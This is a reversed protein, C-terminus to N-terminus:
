TVKGEVVDLLVTVPGDNILDIKMHAGFTGTAVPIGAAAVLRAVEGVLPEATDPAAAGVFSPRRGRRLDALLTFQSVILMEGGTDAISRNMRGQDDSFIRLGVLKKALAAADRPEDDHGVGVLVLLGGGILGVTKGRVSVVAREVRQVVARM